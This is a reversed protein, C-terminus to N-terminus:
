FEEAHFCAPCVAFCVYSGPRHYARLRLGKTGCCSCTGDQCVSRDIAINEPHIAPPPGDRFGDLYGTAIIESLTQRETKPIM